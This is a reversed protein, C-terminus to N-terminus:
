KEWASRPIAFRFEGEVGVHKGPLDLHLVTADTTPVEFTLLDRISRGNEVDAANTAGVLNTTNRYLGPYSNGHEDRLIPRGAGDRWTLYRTRKPGGEATVEVEVILAPDESEYKSPKGPAAPSELTVKGVRVGVVRVTVGGVTAGDVLAVARPGEAAKVAMAEAAEARASMEEQIMREERVVTRATFFGVAAVGACVLVVLGGAALAVLLVSNSNSRAPRYEDTEDHRSFKAM